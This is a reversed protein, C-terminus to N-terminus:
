IKIEKIGQVDIPKIAKKEISKSDHGIKPLNSRNTQRSSPENARRADAKDMIGVVDVSGSLPESAKINTLKKAATKPLSPRIIEVEKFSVTPELIHFGFADSLIEDVLSICIAKEPGKEVQHYEEPVKYEYVPMKEKVKIYGEPIPIHPETKIRKNLKEIM